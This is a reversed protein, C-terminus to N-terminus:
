LRHAPGAPDARPPRGAPAAGGGERPDEPGEGDGAGEAGRHPDRAARRPHARLRHDQRAPRG